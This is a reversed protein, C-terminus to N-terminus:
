GVIARTLYFFVAGTALVGWLNRKFIVGGL